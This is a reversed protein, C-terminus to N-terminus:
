FSIKQLDEVLFYKCTGTSSVGCVESLLYLKRTLLNGSCVWMQLVHYWFYVLFFYQFFILFDFHNWPGYFLWIHRYKFVCVSFCGSSDDLYIAVKKLWELELVWTLVLFFFCFLDGFESTMKLSCFYPNKRNCNCLFLISINLLYAWCFKLFDSTGPSFSASNVMSIWRLIFNSIERLISNIGVFHRCSFALALDTEANWFLSGSWAAEKCCNFM